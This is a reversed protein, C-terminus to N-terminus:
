SKSEEFSKIVSSEVTNLGLINESMALIQTSHGQSKLQIKLSKHELVNLIFSRTLIFSFMGIM